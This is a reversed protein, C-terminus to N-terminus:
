ACKGAPQKGACSPPTISLTGLARGTADVLRGVDAVLQQPAITRDLDAEVQEKAELLRPWPGTSGSRPAPWSM